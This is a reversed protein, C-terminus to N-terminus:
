ESSYFGSPFHSFSKLEVEKMTKEAGLEVEAGPEVM